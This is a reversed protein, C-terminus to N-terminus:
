LLNKGVRKIHDLLNKNNISDLDIVDFFYPLNTLENLCYSLKRHDGIVAIDVDSGKKFTGKARSGFLICIRIENQKLIAKICDLEQNTFGFM